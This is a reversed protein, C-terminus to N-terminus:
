GKFTSTGLDCGSPGVVVGEPSGPHRAADTVFPQDRERVAARFGESAALGQFAYGERTHRAAGDLITGLTQAAHLGESYLSQNVALEYGVDSM